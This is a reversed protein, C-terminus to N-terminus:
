RNRTKVKVMDGLTATKNSKSPNLSKLIENPDTAGVNESGVEVVLTIRLKRQLGKAVGISPRLNGNEWKSVVSERQNLFSAFKEQTMNKSERSSRLKVAFDTVLKEEKESKSVAIVGKNRVETNPRVIRKLALAKQKKLERILGRMKKEESFKLAETELRFDLADIEKQLQSASKPKNDKRNRRDHFGM